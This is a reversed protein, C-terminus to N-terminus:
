LSTQWSGSGVGGTFDKESCDFLRKKGEGSCEEKEKRGKETRCLELTFVYILTNCYGQCVGGLFRGAYLWSVSRAFAILGYGALYSTAHVLLATSRRGLANMALGASLTGVPNGLTALSSM